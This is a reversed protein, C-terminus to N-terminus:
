QPTAGAGSPAVRPGYASRITTQPHALLLRHAELSSAVRIVRLRLRGHRSHPLHNQRIRARFLALARTIALRTLSRSMSARACVPASSVGVVVHLAPKALAHACFLHDALRQLPVGQCFYDPDGRSVCHAYFDRYDHLFCAFDQDAPRSVCDM